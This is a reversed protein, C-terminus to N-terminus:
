FDKKFCKMIKVEGRKAECKGKKRELNRKQRKEKRKDSCKGELTNM